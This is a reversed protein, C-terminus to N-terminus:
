EDSLNRALEKATLCSRCLLSLATHDHPQAFQAGCESCLTVRQKDMYLVRGLIDHRTTVARRCPGHTLDQITSTVMGKVSNASISMRLPRTHLGAFFRYLLYSNHDSTTPVNYPVEADKHLIDMKQPKSPLCSYRVNDMHPCFLCDAEDMRYMKHAISMSATKLSYRNCRPCVYVCRLVSPVYYDTPCCRRRRLAALQQRGIHQSLPATYQTLAQQIQSIAVFLRRRDDTSMDKQLYRNLPAKRNAEMVLNGFFYTCFLLTPQTGLLPVLMQPTFIGTARVNKVLCQLTENEKSTLPNCWHRMERMLMQVKAPNPNEVTHQWMEAICDALRKRWITYLTKHAKSLIQVVVSTTTATADDEYALTMMDENRILSVLGGGGQLEFHEPQFLPLPTGLIDGLMTPPWEDRNVAFPVVATHEALGRLMDFCKHKLVHALNCCCVVCPLPTTGRKNACAGPWAVCVFHYHKRFFCEVGFACPPESAQPRRVAAEIEARSVVPIDPPPGNLGRQCMMSELMTITFAAQTTVMMDSIADRRHHDGYLVHSTQSQGVAHALAEVQDDDVRHFAEYQAISQQTGM